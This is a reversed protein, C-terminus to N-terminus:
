TLWSKSLRQAVLDTVKLEPCDNAAGESEGGAIRELCDNIDGVPGGDCRLPTM